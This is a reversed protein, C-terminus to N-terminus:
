LSIWKNTTLDNDEINETIGDFYNSISNDKTKFLIENMKTNVLIPLYTSKSKFEVIDNLNTDYLHFDDQIRSLNLRKLPDKSLLGKILSEEKNLRVKSKIVVDKNLIEKYLDMPDNIDNGFPFENTLIKYAIIGLSWYDCSLTFASGQIIEPPVYLNTKDITITYNKRLNTSKELNILKLYGKYNIIFKEPRLDRHCIKNKHLDRIIVLLNSIFFKFIEKSYYDKEGRENLYESFSKGQIYEEIFLFWSKYKITKISKSIFNSNITLLTSKLNSIKEFTNEDSCIYSKSFAKIIYFNNNSHSLIIKKNSDNKILNLFYIKDLELNSVDMLKIGNILNERIKEDISEHFDIDKIAYLETNDESAMVTATPLEGTLLSIQGFYDGEKLKRLIKNNKIVDVTGSEVIYLKKTDEQNEKVICENKKYTEKILKESLEFKMDESMNHLFDIKNIKNIRECLEILEEKSPKSDFIDLMKTWTSVLLIGDKKMILNEKLKRENNKYFLEGEQIFSLKYRVDVLDGVVSVVIAENNEKKFAVENVKMIEIDFCTYIKNFLSSNVFFNFIKHKQFSQLLVSKYIANSYNDGLIKILAGKQLQYCEATETIVRLYCKKNHAILINYDGFYDNEKLELTINDVTYNIKGEKIIFLSDTIANNTIIKDQNQLTVKIAQSSIKSIM